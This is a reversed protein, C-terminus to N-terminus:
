DDGDLIWIPSARGVVSTKPIAGFYRGDFSDPSAFNLLFVQDDALIFCGQWVPLLRGRRDNARADGLPAGDVTVTFDIRCVRQGSVGAVRKLLPVGRPLYDGVALFDALPKPPQVVVLNSVELKRASQVRYLGVPVSASANWVLKPAPQPRASVAIMGAAVHMMVLTKWTTTM